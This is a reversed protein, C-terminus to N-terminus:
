YDLLRERSEHLYQVLRIWVNLAIKAEGDTVFLFSELVSIWDRPAVVSSMVVGLMVIFFAVNLM